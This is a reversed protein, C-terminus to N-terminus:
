FNNTIKCRTQTLPDIVKESKYFQLVDHNIVDYPKIIFFDNSTIVSFLLVKHDIFL